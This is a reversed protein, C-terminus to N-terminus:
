RSSPLNDRSMKEKHPYLFRTPVQCICTLADYQMLDIYTQNTQNVFTLVTLAPVMYQVGSCLNVPGMSVTRFIVTGGFIPYVPPYGHIRIRVLALLVTL